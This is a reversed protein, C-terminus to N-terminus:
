QTAAEDINLHIDYRPMAKKLNERLQKTMEQRENEQYAGDFHVNVWVDKGVMMVMGPSLGKERAVISRIMDQDDGLDTRDNDLTIFSPSHNMEGDNLYDGFHNDYIVGYNIPGPGFFHHSLRQMQTDQEALQNPMQLAQPPDAPTCATVMSLALGCCLIAKKM